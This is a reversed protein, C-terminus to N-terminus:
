EPTAAGTGESRAFFVDGAAILHRLGDAADLVLRGDADIGTFRGTLERDPLRATVTDGIGAAAALWRERIASVGNGADWLALASMLADAYVPFFTEPTQDGAGAGSLSIAPYLGGQPAHAINIGSGIVIAQRGGPLREGEILLGSVKAGDILVDNPWKITVRRTTPVVSSVAEHLAVSVALPLSGLREMPAPDILLLSCYLNGPESIWTRGRRGRGGTQSRGTVFLPGAEGSRAHRMCESNTSDVADLDIRRYGTERM